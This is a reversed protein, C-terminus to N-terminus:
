VRSSEELARRLSRILGDFTAEAVKPTAIIVYDMGPQLEVREAAARLRRKIRNRRVAPGCARSVVLGLRPPGTQGPSSVLVIEGNRRRIGDNLVRRFDRSNRLSQYDPM